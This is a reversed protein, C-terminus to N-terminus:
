HAIPAAPNMCQTIAQNSFKLLQESHTSLKSVYLGVHEDKIVLQHLGELLKPDVDKELMEDGLYVGDVRAHRLMTLASSWSVTGHATAGLEEVILEEFVSGNVTAIVWTSFDHEPTIAPHRTVLIFKASIVPSSFHAFRNRFRNPSLFLGLDFAGQELMLELRALPVSHLVYDKNLTDLICQYIQGYKGSLGSGSLRLANPIAVNVGINLTTDPLTSTKAQADGFFTCYSILILAHCVRVFAGKRVFLFTCKRFAYM